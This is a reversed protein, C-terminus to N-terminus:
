QTRARQQPQPPRVRFSNISAAMRGERTSAVVQSLRVDLGVPPEEKGTTGAVWWSPWSIWSKHPADLSSAAM